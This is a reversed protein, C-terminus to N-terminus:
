TPNPKGAFSLIKIEERFLILFMIYTIKREKKRGFVVYFQNSYCNSPYFNIIKCTLNFKKARKIKNAGGLLLFCKENKKFTRSDTARM